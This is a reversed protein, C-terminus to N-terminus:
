RPAGAAAGPRPFFGGGSQVQAPGSSVVGAAEQAAQQALRQPPTVTAGTATLPIHATRQAESAIDADGTSIREVVRSAIKVAENAISAAEMNPRSSLGNVAAMLAMVFLDNSQDQPKQQEPAPTEQDSM